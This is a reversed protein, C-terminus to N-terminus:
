SHDKEIQEAFVQELESAVTEWTRERTVRSIEVRDWKRALAQQLSGALSEEAQETLLGLEASHLIEPIGGVRTAVVPTGCALSETVVNPWGERASALCSIDAANYWLPLEENHRKGLLQVQGIKELVFGLAQGIRVAEGGLQISFRRLADHRDVDNGGLGTAACVGNRMGNLCLKTILQQLESRYPGEGLICLRVDGLEAAIRSFARVLLQHGKSPILAGVSLILRGELPLNLQRRAEEQKSNQFRESDVGNSVVRIKNEDTGLAAIATKLAASVAILASARRLTWCIMPRILYFSPYVNIDTGRASVIVPIRLLKGLLVAVLGDPYVFHADICDIKKRRNIRRIGPLCGLFMSLAHFPMSIKPLLFYRPHHVTLTQITEQRPLSAMTQWRRTKVWRPLYPIPAVVEVENGPRKALHASRQYVFIGHDPDASNPFLSAFTLIRLESDKVQRIGAQSRVNRYKGYVSLRDSGGPSHRVEM